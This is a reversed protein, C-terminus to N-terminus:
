PLIEQGLRPLFDTRDTEHHVITQQNIGRITLSSLTDPHEMRFDRVM